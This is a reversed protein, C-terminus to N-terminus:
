RVDTSPDHCGSGSTPEDALLLIWPQRGIRDGGNVRQQM